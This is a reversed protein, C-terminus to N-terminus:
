TLMLADAMSVKEGGGWLMAADAEGDSETATCQSPRPKMGATERNITNSGTGDANSKGKTHCQLDKLLGGGVKVSAAAGGVAVLLLGKPNNDRESLRPIRCSNGRNKRAM